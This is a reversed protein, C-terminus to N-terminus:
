NYENIMKNSDVSYIKNLSSGFCNLDKEMIKNNEQLKNGDYIEFMFKWKKKDSLDSNNLGKYL